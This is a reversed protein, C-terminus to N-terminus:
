SGENYHNTSKTPLPAEPAGLVGVTGTFQNRRAEMKGAADFLDRNTVIDYRDFVSRTRHGSIQMAVNEAVGALRM